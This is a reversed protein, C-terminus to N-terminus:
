PISMLLPRITCIIPATMSTSNGRSTTGLTYSASFSFVSQGKFYLLLQTVAHHARNRHTGGFADAAAQRDLIGPRRDDTGTPM